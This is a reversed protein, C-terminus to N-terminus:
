KTIEKELIRTKERKNKMEKPKKKGEVNWCIEEAKCEM